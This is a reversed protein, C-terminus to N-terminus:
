NKSDKKWFIFTLFFIVVTTFALPRILRMYGSDELITSELIFISLIPVINSEGPNKFWISIMLSLSFSFALVKYIRKQFFLSLLFSTIFAGLFYIIWFM